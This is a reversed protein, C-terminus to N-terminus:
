QIIVWCKRQPIKALNCIDEKRVNLLSQIIPNQGTSYSNDQGVFRIKSSHSTSFSRPIRHRVVILYKMFIVLIQNKQQYYISLLFLGVTCLLFYLSDPSQTSSSSSLYPFYQEESQLAPKGYESTFHERLCSAMSFACELGPNQGWM